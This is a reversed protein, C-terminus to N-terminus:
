IRSTVLSSTLPPGAVLVQVLLPLLWELFGHVGPLLNQSPKSEPTLKQAEGDRAARLLNSFHARHPLQKERKSNRKRQSEFTETNEMENTMQARACAPTANPQTPNDIVDAAAM